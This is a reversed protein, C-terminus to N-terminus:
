RRRLRAGLARPIEWVHAVDLVARSYDFAAMPGARVGQAAAMRRFRTYHQGVREFVSRAGPPSQAKGSSRRAYAPVPLARLSAEFGEPLTLPVLSRLVEIMSLVATPLQATAAMTAVRPWDIAGSQALQAADAVALLGQVPAALCSRLFHATADLSRAHTGELACPQAHNWGEVDAAEFPADALLHWSLELRRGKDGTMSYTNRWTRESSRPPGDWGQTALRDLAATTSHPPVLLEVAPIPRTGVDPYVALALAAAGIVLVPVEATQLTDVARRVEQLMFQNAYWTRRYIGAIRPLWPHDIGFMEVNRYLLPLLMVQTYPLEDLDCATIWAGFAEVAAPPPLLAARLLAREPSTLRTM